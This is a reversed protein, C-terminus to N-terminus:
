ENKKFNQSVFDFLAQGTFRWGAGGYKTGKILGRKGMKCITAPTLGLAEGAELSTYILNFIIPQKTM